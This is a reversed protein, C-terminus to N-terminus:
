LSAPVHSFDPMHKQPCLLSNSFCHGNVRERSIFLGQQRGSITCYIRQATLVEGYVAFGLDNEGLEAYQGWALVILECSQINRLGACRNGTINNFWTLCARWDHQAQSPWPSSQISNAKLRELRNDLRYAFISTTCGLQITLMGATSSGCRRIVVFLETVSMLYALRHDLVKVSDAKLIILMM